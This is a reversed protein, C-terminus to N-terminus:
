VGARIFAVLQATKVISQQMLNTYMHVILGNRIVSVQLTNDASVDGSFGEIFRKLDKMRSITWVDTTM